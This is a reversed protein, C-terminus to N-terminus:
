SANGHRSVVSLFCIQCATYGQDSLVCYFFDFILGVFLSFPWFLKGLELFEM